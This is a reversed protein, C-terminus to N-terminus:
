FQFPEGDREIAQFNRMNRVIKWCLAYRKRGFSSDLPLVYGNEGDIVLEGSAATMTTTIVPVGCIMAENIVVGWCDGSTPLLLTKARSYFEPLQEHEIFGGYHYEIGKRRFTEFMKDKSKEDGEGIILVKCYGLRERIKLAVDTFLSPNKTDIIRGAFM